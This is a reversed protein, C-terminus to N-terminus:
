KNAEEWLRAAERADNAMETYKKVMETVFPQIVNLYNQAMTIGVLGVFAWNVLREMDADFAQDVETLMKSIQDFEEAMQRVAAPDM